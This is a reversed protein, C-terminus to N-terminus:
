GARATTTAKVASSSAPAKSTISATSMAATPFSSAVATLSSAHVSTAPLSPLCATSTPKLMPVYRTTLPVPDTENPQFVPCSPYCTQFYYKGTNCTITLGEDFNGDGNNDLGDCQTERGPMVPPRPSCSTSAHNRIGDIGVPNQMWAILQSATVFYTSNNTVENVWDMFPHLVGAIRTPDELIWAAHLWIGFPARNQNYHYDLFNRKFAALLTVHDGGPDMLASAIGLNNNMTYMPVEWLWIGTNCTVPVGHDYTWPFLPNSSPNVSVSSDYLYGLSSIREFTSMNFNLYPARFGQINWAGVRAFAEVAMRQGQIQALDPLAVHEMTHDAVEQGNAFLIQVDHYNTWDTSVFYTTSIPCGNPNVRPVTASTYSLFTAVNVADDWTLLVFQPTQSVPLNGPPLPSPCHCNKSILCTAPDCQYGPLIQATKLADPSPLHVSSM